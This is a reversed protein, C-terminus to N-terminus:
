ADCKIIGLDLKEQFDFICRGEVKQFHWFVIFAVLHVSAVIKM